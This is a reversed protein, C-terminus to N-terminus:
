RVHQISSYTVHHLILDCSVPLDRPSPLHLAFVAITQNYGDFVYM